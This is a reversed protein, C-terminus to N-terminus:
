TLRSRYESTSGDDGGDEEPTTTSGLTTETTSTSSSSSSDVEEPTTSGTTAPTTTTSGQDDDDDCEVQGTVCSDCEAIEVCNTTLVCHDDDSDYTFWQCDPTETCWELCDEADEVLDTDLYSGQCEGEVFCQLAECDVQGSVCNDCSQDFTNCDLFAVCATTDTFYTFYSCDETAQCFSLCQYADDALDQDLFISEQCQGQVFCGISDEQASVSVSAALAALLLRTSSSTSAM